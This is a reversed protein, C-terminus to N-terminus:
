RADDDGESRDETTKLLDLWDSVRSKDAGSMKLSQFRGLDGRIMDIVSLGRRFQWTAETMGGTSGGTGFVGTLQNFITSPNVTAPFATEKGSFSIVEKINTSAAGVSLVLPSKASPNIM